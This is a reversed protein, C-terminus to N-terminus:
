VARVHFNFYQTRGASGLTKGTDIYQALTISTGGQAGLAKGTEEQAEKGGGQESEGGEQTM